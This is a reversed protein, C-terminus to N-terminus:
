SRRGARESVIFLPKDKVMEHIDSVYLGLVGIVFFLIAFFLTMIGVVSAWGPVTNGLAFQIVVYLLEFLALFGTAVGLWLGLRLPVDSHSILGNQALSLMKRLSYKSEGAHRIQVEYPVSAREFGIGEVAGRLFPRAHRRALLADLAVRDLLRFDSTGPSLETDALISFVRYYLRSTMVKFGSEVGTDRRETTVVKAGQRWLRILTPLIEPPHQLDGDMSIIASGRADSLGALLAHQHGHNRSLRLGRVRPYTDCSATLVRWTGDSSGDDVVVIEWNFGEESLVTELRELLVPLSTEENCVPVVISIEPANDTADM